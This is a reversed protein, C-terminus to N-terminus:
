ESWAKYMIFEQLLLTLQVQDSADFVTKINILINYSTQKCYIYQCINKVINLLFWVWIISDIKEYYPWRLSKMALLKIKVWNLVRKVRLVWKVTIEWEHFNETSILIDIKLLSNDKSINNFLHTKVPTDNNISMNVLHNAIDLDASSHSVTDSRRYM